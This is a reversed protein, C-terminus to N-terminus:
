RKILRLTSLVGNAALIALTPVIPARMRIDTWYVVHVAALGAAVAITAIVPWRWSSRSCLAIGAMIWIPITWIACFMRVKTSYVGAAPAVAWFRLQRHLCSIAFKEPHALIFATAKARIKRDAEPETLGITDTGIADMWAQQRPGTWVAHPPGFVVDEYYTANNALALTYGGHTTTLVPEGLRYWNRIAWPSIVLGCIILISLSERVRKVFPSTSCPSLRALITLGACVLLSPRCLSSAGFWFGATKPRDHFLARVAATLLFAALAETMVLPAQIVLLPDLAAWFGAILTVFRSRSSRKSALPDQPPAIDGIKSAASMTLWATAGGIAAQFLVLAVHFAKGSGLLAVMPTLLIPYLPPRYATPRGEFSFGQGDLLSEALVLYHDPDAPENQLKTMGFAIRVFVAIAVIAYRLFREDSFSSRAPLHPSQNSGTVRPNAHM